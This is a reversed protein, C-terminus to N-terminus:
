FKKSIQGYVFRGTGDAYQPDYGLNDNPDASFPPAEDAINNCGVTFTTGELLTRWDFGDGHPGPALEHEVMEKDFTYSAQVNFVFYAAVNRAIGYDAAAVNDAYGSSYDNDVTFALERYNWTISADQRYRSYAGLGGGTDQGVYDSAGQGFDQIYKRYYTAKVDFDLQGLNTNPDGWVYNGEWDFGEVYSNSLNAYNVDISSIANNALYHVQTSNSDILTQPDQIQIQNNYRIKFYDATLELGKVAEPAYAVGFSFTEATEPKLDPNGPTIQEVQAETSGTIPNTFKPNNVFVYSANGGTGIENLSPARFSKSYTFRLVLGPVTEWRLQIEPNEASGFNTYKDVRGTAIVDTSYFGPINFSPSTLPFDVQTYGSLVKRSAATDQQPAEGLIDGQREAQSYNQNYRELRYEGGLAMQIPGAPLDTIKGNLRFDEGFISYTGQHGTNVGLGALAGPTQNGTSTFPNYADAPNTSALERQFASSSVFGVGRDNLFGYGYNLGTNLTWGDGLKFDISPVARFTDSDVEEKRPGLQTFRYALLDVVEGTQNFPNTTPVIFAPIPPNGFAATTTTPGADGDIASYGTPGSTELARNHRYDFDINPVINGDYFKYTYDLYLGYRTEDPLTSTTANYNYANPFNDIVNPDAGPTTGTLAGTTGPGVTFLNGDTEGFFLGPYSRGSRVDAGGNARQDATSSLARDVALQSNQHQYDAEVIGFGNKDFSELNGSVTYRQYFSDKHTTNGIYTDAEGNEDDPLSKKTIINIVGGIADAGYLATGNTLIEVHDVIQV